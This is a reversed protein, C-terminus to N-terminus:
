DFIWEHLGFGLFFAIYGVVLFRLTFRLADHNKSHSLYLKYAILNALSGVLSGFGGVNSGWLLPRWRDTFEALLVTAPVNSLIQSSWACLIFLHKPNEIFPSLLIKINEALGFFCIFTLLLPYDIRLSSRDWGVGYLLIGLCIWSPLLHLIVLVLLLFFIGYLFARSTVPTFTPIPSPSLRAGIIWASLTLLILFFASFPAITLVFEEAHLHYVWYLFLNQPNGFPTLASGANAALAELIVIWDKCPVNLALTLPVIALLAGDNTMWMSLFFTGIVLKLPIWRGREISQSLRRLLGSQELGKVTMFLAALLLVVEGEERSYSPFRHLYISTLILGTGSAVFLWEKLLFHFLPRETNSHDQQQESPMSQETSSSRDREEDNKRLWRIM